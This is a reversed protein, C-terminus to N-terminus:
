KGGKDLSVVKLSLPRVAHTLSHQLANIKKILINIDTSSFDRIKMEILFQVCSKISGCYAEILERDGEKRFLIYNYKDSKIRWNDILKINVM